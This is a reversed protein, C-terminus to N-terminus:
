VKWRIRNDPRTGVYDLPDAIHNKEYEYMEKLDQNFPGKANMELQQALLHGVPFQSRWELYEEYQLM